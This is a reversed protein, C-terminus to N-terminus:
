LTRSLQFKVPALIKSAEDSQEEAHCLPRAEKSIIGVEEWKSLPFTLIPTFAPM